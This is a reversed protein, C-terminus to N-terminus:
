CLSGDESSLLLLAGSLIEENALARTGSRREDPSCRTVVEELSLLVLLLALDESPPVSSKTFPRSKAGPAGCGSFFLDTGTEIDLPITCTDKYVFNKAITEEEILHSPLHENKGVCLFAQL